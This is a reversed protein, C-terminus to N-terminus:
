FHVECFQKFDSSCVFLMSYCRRDPGRCHTLKIFGSPESTAEYFGYEAGRPDDRRWEERRFGLGSVLEDFFTMVRVEM